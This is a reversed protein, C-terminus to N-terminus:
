IEVTLIGDEDLEFDAGKYEADTFMSLEGTLPDFDFTAYMVNGKALEGTNYWKGTEEDWRWWYGNRIEDRHDSLTNLRDAADDAHVAALSAAQAAANAKTAKDDANGAAVDAELTAQRAKETVAETLQAAQTANITASNANLAATNALLTAEHAEKTAEETKLRAADAKEAADQAPQRLYALYDDYTKGPNKAIWETSATNGRLLEMDAYMNYNTDKDVGLIVLNDTSTAKEFETIRKKKIPM